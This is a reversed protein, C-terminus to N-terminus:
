YAKNYNSVKHGDQFVGHCNDYYKPTTCKVTATEVEHYLTSM